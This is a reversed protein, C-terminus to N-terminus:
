TAGGVPLTSQFMARAQKEGGLYPDSGGRPAHISVADDPPGPAGVQVIGRPDKPKGRAVRFGLSGRNYSGLAYWSIESAVEHIIVWEIWQPYHLPPLPLSSPPHFSLHRVKKGSGSFPTLIYATAYCDAQAM